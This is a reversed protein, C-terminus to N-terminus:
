SIKERILEELKTPPYVIWRKYDNVKGPEMDTQVGGKWLIPSERDGLSFAIESFNSHKERCYEPTEFIFRWRKKSFGMCVHLSEMLLPSNLITNSDDPVSGVYSFVEILDGSSKDIEILRAYAYLADPLFKYRSYSKRNDRIDSELFLPIFFINGEKEDIYDLDGEKINMVSPYLAGGPTV